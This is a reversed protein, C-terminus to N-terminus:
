FLLYVQENLGFYYSKEKGCFISAEKYCKTYVVMSIKASIM